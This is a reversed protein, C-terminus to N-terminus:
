RCASWKRGTEARRDAPAEDSSRVAGTSDVFFHRDGTVGPEKPDAWCWWEVTEGSDNKRVCLRFIYGFKGSTTARADGVDYYDALGAFDAAYGGGRARRTQQAVCLARLEAVASTENAAIKPGTLDPPYCGVLSLGVAAATTALILVRSM